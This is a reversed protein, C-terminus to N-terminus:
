YKRFYKGNRYGGKKWDLDYYHKKALGVVYRLEAFTLKNRGEIHMKEKAFCVAEAWQCNGIDYYFHTMEHIVTQAAIKTNAVNDLYIKINNGQQEGRQGSLPKIGQIIQINVNSMEIQKLVEKGIPSRRMEQKIDNVSIDTNSSLTKMNISQFVGSGKAKNIIGNEANSQLEEKIKEPNINGKSGHRKVYEEIWTDWDEVYPIWTCRCWPHMPPFNVGPQRESIEFVKGNLARCIECTKGDLIPSYEYQAFDEEFPKISSEAMVYTGETFVLRYANNRNVSFRRRVDKVIRDYSDGRAFAQAMDRNIYEAVKQADKWIRTSFNEGNCWAVDVFQKVIAANVAYFNKGFGLAEMSCNLGQRALETEYQRMQESTYGAINAQTMYVSYQLGQLRDLKYISERAPMLHAYQPYKKAFESMQEILLTKDTDDLSEMLKRYEIVNDVGYKQFYAAIEKDLKRLETDYFKSLRKKIAAEDKEATKRLQEQRESWYSM